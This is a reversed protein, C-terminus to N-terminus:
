EVEVFKELALLINAAIQLLKGDVEQPLRVKEIDLDVEQEMLEAMGSQFKEWDPSVPRELLDGPMVVAINGDEQSQGYRKVLGLRVEEIAGLPEGFRQVLRAVQLSVMIPLNKGSLVSLFERATFIEGNTLKM